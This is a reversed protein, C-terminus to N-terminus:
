KGRAGNLEIAVQGLQVITDHLMLMSAQPIDHGPGSDMRVVCDRFSPTPNLVHGYM